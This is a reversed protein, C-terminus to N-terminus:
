SQEETTIPVGDFEALLARTGMVAAVGLPIVQALSAAIVTRTLWGPFVSATQSAGLVSFYLLGQGIFITGASVGLATFAGDRSQIARVAGFVGIAIFAFTQVASVISQSFPVPTAGLDDILHLVNAAAIVLAIMGGARSLARWTFSEPDPESRSLPIIIPISLLVVAPILWVLPSQGPVWILDGAVERSAGGIEVPVTWANVTQVTGPNAAVAPPDAQAMWHIRHDHWAYTSGESIQEWEPDEQAGVGAPVATQGFRDENLYTAASNRNRFVGEPGIRLYPEGTYGPVRVEDDTDNRLELYEDGNLVQWQLGDVEPTATIVSTFNTADSGRGHAAAPSAVFAMILLGLVSVTVVRATM